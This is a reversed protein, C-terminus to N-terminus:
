EGQPPIQFRWFPEYTENYAPKDYVVNWGREHFSPEVDLYKKDFLYERNFSTQIEIQKIVDNQRLIAQKGDWKEQIMDNFVNFIEEPIRNRNKAMFDKAPM